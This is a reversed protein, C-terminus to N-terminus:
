FTEPLKGSSTYARLFHNMEPFVAPIAKLPRAQQRPKAAKGAPRSFASGTRSLGTPGGALRKSPRFQKDGKTRGALSGWNNIAAVSGQDGVYSVYPFLRHRFL